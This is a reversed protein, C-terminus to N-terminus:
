LFFSFKGCWSTEPICSGSTPCLLENSDCAECLDCLCSATPKPRLGAGCKCERPKCQAIGGIVCICQSCDSKEFQAGIGYTLHDIVCPCFNREVCKVGNWFQASKCPCIGEIMSPSNVIEPCVNCVTANLTPLVIPKEIVTMPQYQYPVYCGIPEIKLEICQHWKTPTLKMSRAQIPFRFYNSKESSSDFNAVFLQESKGGVSLIKNWVILDKTYHITYAKVWCNAGGKTRMGTINRPEMFDFLVYENPSDINPQWGNKSSLKLSQKALDKTSNLKFSSLSIQDIHLNGNELGLPEDCVPKDEVIEIHHPTITTTQEQPKRWQFPSCGLLEVRVSISGHWTLPYIKVMKAEIPVKFASKVPTKSDIPGSFVQPKKTEDILYHLDKGDYSYVIKFSTVYQDFM